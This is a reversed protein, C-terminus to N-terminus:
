PYTHQKNNNQQRCKNRKNRKKHVCIFYSREYHKKAHYRNNRNECSHTINNLSVFQKDFKATNCGTAYVNIINSEFAAKVGGQLGTSRVVDQFATRLNTLEIRITRSRNKVYVCMRDLQANDVRKETM